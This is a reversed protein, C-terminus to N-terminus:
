LSISDSARDVCRRTLNKLRPASTAKTEAGDGSLRRESDSFKVTVVLPRGHVRRVDGESWRGSCLGTAKSGSAMELSLKMDRIEHSDKYGGVLGHNRLGHRWGATIIRRAVLSPVELLRRYHASSFKPRERM